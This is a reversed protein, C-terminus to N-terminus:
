RIPLVRWMSCSSVEPGVEEELFHLRLFLLRLLIGEMPDFGIDTGMLRTQVSSYSAVAPTGQDKQTTLISGAGAGAEALLRVRCAIGRDLPLPADAERELWDLRNADSLPDAAHISVDPQLGHLREMVLRGSGDERYLSSLAEHGAIVRAFAAALRQPDTGPALEAAYTMNYAPDDPALRWATWLARQEEGAAIAASDPFISDM